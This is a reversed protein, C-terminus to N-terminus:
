SDPPSPLNLNSLGIYYKRYFSALYGMLELVLLRGEVAYAQAKAPLVEQSKERLTKAHLDIADRPSAKLFGLKDALSRLRDSIDHQVKYARQELALDLLQGYTQALEEFIEPVSEQLSESGFMRSTIGTRSTAFHELDQFEQQQRQREREKRYKQREIALRIEYILLQSDLNPLHLYGDAGLQFAKVISREDDSETEVILPTAPIKERLQLLTGAGQSDPLRLHVLVVDFSEATLTELGRALSDAWTLTFDMGLALSCRDAALLLKEIRERNAPDGEILLVKCLNGSM